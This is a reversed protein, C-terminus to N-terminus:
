YEWLDSEFDMISKKIRDSEMMAEIGTRTYDNVMRNNLNNAEAIIYSQFRRKHFLDDYSVQALDNQGFYAAENALARRAEPFYVWFLKRKLEQGSAMVMDEDDLNLEKNYIRVPCIGVIRVFLQSYHRDFYWEEKVIFERVEEWHIEGRIVITTDGSGDIKEQTVVRDSADFRSLVEEPTMTVKFEDDDTNYAQVAGSLIGNYLTQVLSKRYDLSITPYYLAYNMKERCDIIRWVIRSWAVDAERYPMYEIPKKDKIITRPIFTSRPTMREWEVKESGEDDQAKAVFLSSFLLISILLLKKM